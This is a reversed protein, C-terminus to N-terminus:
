FSSTENKMFDKPLILTKRNVIEEYNEMTYRVFPTFEEPSHIRSFYMIDPNVSGGQGSFYESNYNIGNTSGQTSWYRIGTTDGWFNTIWNIFIVSHGSGTTRWFQLYDGKKVKSIDAINDGIGFSTMAVGPGDGWISQVFWLHIFYRMDAPTMNNIDEGKGLDGNLQQVALFFDEFTLGCCYCSKSGDPNSKAVREGKYYLDQTVGTYTDVWSYPHTGDRPYEELIEISYENFDIGYPERITLFTSDTVLINRDDVLEFYLLAEFTVAPIGYIRGNECILSEPVTSQFNLEGMGQINEMEVRDDYSIGVYGRRLKSQMLGLRPSLCFHVHLYSTKANNIESFKLLISSRDIDSYTIFVLSDESFYWDIPVDPSTITIPKEFYIDLTDTASEGSMLSITDPSVRAFPYVHVKIDDLKLEPPIPNMEYVVTTDQIDRDNIKLELIDFISTKSLTSHNIVSRQNSFYIPMDLFCMKKIETRGDFQIRYFYTGKSCLHGTENKGDWILSHFGKPQYANILTRVRQGLINFVELSVPGDKDLAYSITTTPNFPNPYNQHLQYQKVSANNESIVTSVSFQFKGMEDTYSDGMLQSNLYLAVRVHDLKEITGRGNILQGNVSKLQATVTNSIVPIIITFLIVLKKM